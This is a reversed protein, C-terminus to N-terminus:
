QTNLSRGHILLDKVQAKGSPTISLVIRTTNSDIQGELKRAQDEPLYYKEIGAEFRGSSCVGRILKSCDQPRTYSFIKPELCLYGVQQGSSSPCIGDVGYEIKYRLYHGSLLDRPDEGSIPLIIEHKSLLLSEQYLTLAALYLIPFLLSFVLTKKKQIM